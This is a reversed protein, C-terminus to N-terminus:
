QFIARAGRQFSGVLRAKVAFEVSEVLLASGIASVVVLESAKGAMVTVFSDKSRGGATELFLCLKEAFRLFLIINRAIDALISFVSFGVLDIKAIVAAFALM